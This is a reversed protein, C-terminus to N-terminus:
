ESIQLPYSNGIDVVADPAPQTVATEAKTPSSFPTTDRFVAELIYVLTNLISKGAEASNLEV